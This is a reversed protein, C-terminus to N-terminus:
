IRNFEQLNAIAQVLTRGELQALGALVEPPADNQLLTEILTERDPFKEVKALIIAALNSRGVITFANLWRKETFPQGIPQGLAALQTHLQAPALRVNL